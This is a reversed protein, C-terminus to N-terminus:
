AIVLWGIDRNPIHNEENTCKNVLCVMEFHLIKKMCMSGKKLLCSWYHPQSKKPLSIPRNLPWHM